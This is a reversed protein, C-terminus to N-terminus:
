KSWDPYEGDAIRRQGTGDVNIVYISSPDWRPPSSPAEVGGDSFVLQSGDPSWAFDNAEHGDGPRGIVREGSGDPAVLTLASGPGGLAPDEPGGLMAIWRGDPSWAFPRDHIAQVETSYDQVKMRQPNTGDANVVWLGGGREATSGRMFAIRSGDPSWALPGLDVDTLEVLLAENSGDADMVRLSNTSNRLPGSYRGFAIRTGDPSWRIPAIAVGNDNPGTLPTLRGDRVDVVYISSPKAGGPGAAHAPYAFAIRTGDPSWAFGGDWWEWDRQVNPEPLDAIRRMDSGDRNAVWIGPEDFLLRFALRSGDPSSQVAPGVSGSGALVHSMSTPVNALLTEEERGGRLSFIRADKVTPTPGGYGDRSGDWTYQAQVFVIEGAGIPMVPTAIPAAPTAIPLISIPIRVWGGTGLALGVIASLLLAAATLLLIPRGVPILGWGWGRSQTTSQVTLLVADLLEVAANPGDTRSSLADKLLPDTLTTRQTSM